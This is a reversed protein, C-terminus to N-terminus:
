VVIIGFDFYEQQRLSLFVQYAKSSSILENFKAASGKKLNGTTNADDIQLTFFRFDKCAEIQLIQDFYIRGVGNTGWKTGHTNLFVLYPRKEMDKRFGIFMVMHSPIKENKKLPPNLEYINNTLNFSNNERVPLCGLMPVGLKLIDCV